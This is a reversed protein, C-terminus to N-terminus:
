QNLKATARQNNLKNIIKHCDDDFKPQSQNPLFVWNSSHVGGSVTCTTSSGGGGVGLGGGSAGLGLGRVVVAGLGLGGLGLVTLWIGITTFSLVGILLGVGVGLVSLKFVWFPLLPLPFSSAALEPLFSVVLLVAVLVGLKGLSMIVISSNGRKGPPSSARIEYRCLLM